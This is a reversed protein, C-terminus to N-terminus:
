GTIYPMIEYVMFYSDRNVIWYLAFYPRKKKTARTRELHDSNHDSTTFNKKGSNKKTFFSMSIHFHVFNSVRFMNPKM